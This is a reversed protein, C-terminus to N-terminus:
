GLGPGTRGRLSRRIAPPTVLANGAGAGAAGRRVPTLVQDIRLVVIAAGEMDPDSILGSEALRGTMDNYVDGQREVSATCRFKWGTDLAANRFLVIVRPNEEIHELPQRRTRDRYVFTRTAGRLAGDGIYGANPTGDESATAVICPFGDDRARNILSTMEETLQIM